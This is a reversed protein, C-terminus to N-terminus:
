YKIVTSQGLGKLRSKNNDCDLAFLSNKLKPAKEIHEDGNRHRANIKCTYNADNRFKKKELLFYCYESQSARMDSM